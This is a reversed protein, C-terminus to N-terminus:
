SRSCLCTAFMIDPRRVTPYLLSIIMGRYVIIDVKKGKKDEDFKTTNSM